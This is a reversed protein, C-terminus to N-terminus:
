ENKPEERLVSAQGSSHHMAALTDPARAKSFSAPVQGRTMGGTQRAVAEEWRRFEAM